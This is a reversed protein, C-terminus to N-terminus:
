GCIVGIECIGSGNEEFASEGSTQSRKRANSAASDTMIQPMQTVQPSLAATEHTM